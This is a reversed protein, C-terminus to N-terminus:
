QIFDLLSPGIISTGIKLASNYAYMAWSYNTIAEAPEIGVENNYQEQISTEEQELRTKTNELLQSKAGLETLVDQVQESGAQFQTWLQEYKERDFTDAELVEAMQGALVIINKSTDDQTKGFGVVQIGPMAADFASSAVIEGNEYSLGFGIDVYSTEQALAELIKANEPNDVDVGRYLLTTGDESLSFPAEESGGNGGMVFADGYKTNLIQVMSNQMQRLSSAYSARGTEGSTDTMASASYDKSITTAIEGLQMVVDEQTDQWKMVNLVNDQYDSNRASRRELIAARATASPNESASSYRRGTEVQKRCSELGGMTGYLNNQYNRMVMNTTIRM